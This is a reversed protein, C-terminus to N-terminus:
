NCVELVIIGLVGLGDEQLRDERGAERKGEGLSSGLYTGVM